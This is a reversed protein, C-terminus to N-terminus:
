QPASHRRSYLRWAIHLTLGALAGVPLVWWGFLVLGILSFLAIGDAAVGLATPDDFAAIALSGFFVILPMALAACLVGSLTAYVINSQQGVARHQIFAGTTAGVVATLVLGVTGDVAGLGM